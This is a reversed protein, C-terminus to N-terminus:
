KILIFIRHQRFYEQGYKRIYFNHGVGNTAPFSENCGPTITLEAAVLIFRMMVIAPHSMGMIMWFVSKKLQLDDKPM